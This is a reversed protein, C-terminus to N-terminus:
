CTCHTAGLIWILQYNQMKLVNAISESASHPPHRLKYALYYPDTQQLFNGPSWYTCHVISLRLQPLFYESHKGVSRRWVCVFSKIAAPIGVTWSDSHIRRALARKLSRLQCSNYFSADPHSLNPPPAHFGPLLILRHFYLLVNSSNWNIWFVKCHKVLM